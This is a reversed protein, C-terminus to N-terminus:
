PCLKAKRGLVKLIRKADKLSLDRWKVEFLVVNRMGYAVVDIEEGKHWWRGVHKPKFDLDLRRVFDVTIRGSTKGM